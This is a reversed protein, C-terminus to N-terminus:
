GTGVLVGGVVLLPLSVFLFVRLATLGPGTDVEERDPGMGLLARAENDAARSFTTGGTLSTLAAIVMAAIGVKSRFGGGQLAVWVGAAVLAVVAPVLLMALAQRLGRVVDDV